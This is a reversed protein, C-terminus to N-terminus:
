KKVVITLMVLDEGGTNICPHRFLRIKLVRSLRM